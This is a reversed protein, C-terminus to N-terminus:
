RRLGQAPFKLSLRTLRLLSRHRLPTTLWIVIIIRLSLRFVRLELALFLLLYQTPYLFLQTRQLFPHLCSALADNHELATVGGTLASGDLRNGLPDARASEAEDRQRRRGVTFFRLHGHLAIERMKWGGSLDHDESGAPVVAGTDFIHHPETSLFLM